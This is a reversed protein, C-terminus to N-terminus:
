SYKYRRADIGIAIVYALDDIQKNSICGTLSLTLISLIIILTIFKNIKQKLIYVGKM